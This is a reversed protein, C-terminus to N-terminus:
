KMWYVPRGSALWDLRHFHQKTQQHKALYTIQVTSKCACTITERNVYKNYANISKKKKKPILIPESIKIDRNACINKKHDELDEKTKFRLRCNCVHPLVCRFCLDTDKYGCYKSEGCGPCNYKWTIM